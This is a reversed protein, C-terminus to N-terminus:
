RPLGPNLRVAGSNPPATPQQPLAPTSQTQARPPNPVKHLNPPVGPPRPPPPVYVAGPPSTRLVPPTGGEPPPPLTQWHNPSAGSSSPPVARPVPAPTHPPQRTPPPNQWNLPYGSQQPPPPPPGHWVPPPAPAHAYAPVHPYAYYDTSEGYIPVWVQYGYSGSYAGPYGGPYPGPYPGPYTPYSHFIYVPGSLFEAEGRADERDRADDDGDDGAATDDTAYDPADDRRRDDADLRADADWHPQADARAFPARTADCAVYALAHDESRQGSGVVVTLQRRLSQQGPGTAVLEVVNRGAHLGRLLIVQPWRTQVDAASVGRGDLYLSLQEVPFAARRFEFGVRTQAAADACALAADPVTYHAVIDGDAAHATATAALVWGAAM